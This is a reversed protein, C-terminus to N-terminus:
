HCSISTDTLACCSLVLMRSSYLPFVATGCIGLTYRICSVKHLQMAAGIQQSMRIGQEEWDDPLKSAATTRARWRFQLRPNNRVWESIFSQSLKLQNLVAPHKEQLVALMVWRIIHSNLPTGASRLKLLITCIEDNAGPAALLTPSRGTYTASACGATLEQQYQPKLQGKEFWSAVTSHSLREFRDDPASRKLQEVAHRASGSARTYAAIIDNIYPSSFWRTYKGRKSDPLQLAEAAAAAALVDEASRKNRPRGVSRVLPPTPARPPPREKLQQAVQQVQQRHAALDVPQFFAKM